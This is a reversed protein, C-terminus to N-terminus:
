CEGEKQFPFSSIRTLHSYAPQPITFYSQVLLRCFYTPYFFGYFFICTLKTYKLCPFITSGLNFIFHVIVTEQKNIVNYVRLSFELVYCQIPDKRQIGTSSHLMQWFTHAPYLSPSPVGSWYEQRSFGMSPPAQHAATWPTALLRVRSLSKM